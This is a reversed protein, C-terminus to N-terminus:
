VQMACGAPKRLTRSLRLCASSKNLLFGIGARPSSLELCFLFLYYGLSCRVFGGRYSMVILETIRVAKQICRQQPAMGSLCATPGVENRPNVGMIAIATVFLKRVTSQKNERSFFPPENSGCSGFQRPSYVHAM